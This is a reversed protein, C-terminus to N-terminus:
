PAAISSGSPDLDAVTAALAFLSAVCVITNADANHVQGDATRVRAIFGVTAFHAYADNDDARWRWDFRSPEGPALDVVETAGLTTVHEGFVDFAIFRVNVATVPQSAVLTAQVNYEYEDNGRMAVRSGSVVVEPAEYWTTAGPTGEFDVPLRADHIVVWDRSLSSEENLIIGYRTNAGISGGDAETVTVSEPLECMQANQENEAVQETDGDDVSLCATLVLAAALAVNKM